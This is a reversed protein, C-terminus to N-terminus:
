TRSINRTVYDQGGSSFGEVVHEPDVKATLFIVPLEKLKPIKRIERCVEIGSMGPMNIDLLVLDYDEDRAELIDLAQQGSTAFGVQFGHQRLISGIIRINESHDDVVLIKFRKTQTTKM